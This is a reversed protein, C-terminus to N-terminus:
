KSRGAVRNRSCSSAGKLDDVRLRPGSAYTTEVSSVSRAAIGFLPVHGQADAHRRAGPDLLHLPAEGLEAASEFGLGVGIGVLEFNLGGASGIFSYLKYRGAEAIM